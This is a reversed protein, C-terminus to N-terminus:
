EVTYAFSNCCFRRFILTVSQIMFTVIKRQPGPKVYLDNNTSKNKSASGVKAPTKVIYTSYLCRPAIYLAKHAPTLLIFFISFFILLLKTILRNMIISHGLSLDPSNQIDTSFSIPFFVPNASYKIICIQM